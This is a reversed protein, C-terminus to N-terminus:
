DESFQVTSYSVYPIFCTVGVEVLFTLGCFKRLIDTMCFLLQSDGASLFEVHYQVDLVM